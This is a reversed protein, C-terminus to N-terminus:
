ELRSLTQWAKMDSAATDVPQPKTKEAAVQTNFMSATHGNDWQNKGSEASTRTSSGPQSDLMRRNEPDEYAKAHQILGAMTMSRLDIQHDEAYALVAAYTRSGAMGDVVRPEGDKHYLMMSWLGLDSM